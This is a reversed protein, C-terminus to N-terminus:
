NGMICKWPRKMKEEVRNKKFILIRTHAGTVNLEEAVQILETVYEEVIFQPMKNLLEMRSYEIKEMKVKIKCIPLQLVTM